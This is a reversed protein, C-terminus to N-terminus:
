NIGSLRALRDIAVRSMPHIGMRQCYDLNAAFLAIELNDMDFVASHLPELGVFNLDCTSVEAGPYKLPMGQTRCILPRDKYIMCRNEDDLLGCHGDEYLPPQGAQLHVREAEIGLAEGLVVAEVMVLTLGGCCCQGCGPRCAIQESYRAFVSEVFRDIRTRLQHYSHLM